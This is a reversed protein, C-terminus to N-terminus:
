RPAESPAVDDHLGDLAARTGFAEIALRELTYVDRRVDDVEHLSLVHIYLTLPERHVELTLTGPTHSVANAILTVVADSCGRLQVAVIGARIRHRPTIVTRAVVISAEVLKFLFYLAFRVAPVPRFAVQGSRRSGFLWVVITAVLVGGAVNAVSLDSWLALWVAVLWVLHIVRTM